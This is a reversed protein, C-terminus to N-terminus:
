NACQYRSLDLPHSQDSISNLKIKKKMQIDHAANLPPAVM